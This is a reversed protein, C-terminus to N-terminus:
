PGAILTLPRGASTCVQQRPWVNACWVDPQPSSGAHSLLMPGAQGGARRLLGGQLPTGQGAKGAQARTRGSMGYLKRLRVRRSPGQEEGAAQEESAAQEEGAAQLREGVCGVWAGDAGGVVQSGAARQAHVPACCM